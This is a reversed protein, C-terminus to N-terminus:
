AGRLETRSVFLHLCIMRPRSGRSIQMSHRSTLADQAARLWRADSQPWTDLVECTAQIQRGTQQRTVEVGAEIVSHCV